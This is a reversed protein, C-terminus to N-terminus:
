PTGRMPSPSVPSPEDPTARRLVYGRARVSRVALGLPALRLRLRTLQVRLTERRPPGDQAGTLDDYTVVDGMRAVLTRALVAEVASLEAWRRRFHLLDNSDIWPLDARQAEARAALTALRTQVDDDDAPLRVWDELESTVTPAPAGPRVLLLRPVGVRRLAVLREDDEPWVLAPVDVSAEDRVSTEM